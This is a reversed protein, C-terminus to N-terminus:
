SGLMPIIRRENLERDLQTLARSIGQGEGDGVGILYGSYVLGRIQEGTYIQGENEIDKLLDQLTTM